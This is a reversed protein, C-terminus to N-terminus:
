RAKSKHGDKKKKIKILLECVQLEKQEKEMEERIKEQELALKEKLFSNCVVSFNVQEKKEKQKQHQAQKKKKKQEKKKKIADKEMQETLPPITTTKWDWQDLHTGAYRQM